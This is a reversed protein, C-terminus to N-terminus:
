KIEIVPYRERLDHALQPINLEIADAYAHIAARCARLHNLDTADKDLRLVFYEATSDMTEGNTKEVFYRGHLGDPNDERTPISNRNM